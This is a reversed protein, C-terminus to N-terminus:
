SFRENREKLFKIYFSDNLMKAISEAQKFKKQDDKEREIWGVKELMEQEKNWAINYCCQAIGELIGQKLFERISNYMGNTSEEYKGESGIINNYNRLIINYEDYEAYGFLFNNQCSKIILDWILISKKNNNQKVSGIALSNLIKIEQKFLPRKELSKDPYEPITYCLTKELEKQAKELLLGHLARELITRMRLFYQNNEPCYTILQNEIFEKELQDFLVEAKQYQNRKIYSDIRVKKRIHETNGGHLQTIYYTQPLGIRKMWRSFTKIPCSEETEIRLFAQSSCIDECFEIKSMKWFKRYRKLLENFVYCNNYKEISYLQYPDLQCERYLDVIANRENKICVLKKRRTYSIKKRLIAGEELKIYQDQLAVLYPLAANCCLINIGTIAYYRADEYQEKAEYVKSLELCAYPMYMVSLKASIKRGKSYHIIQNLLNKARTLQNKMRYCSSLIILLEMEEPALCTKNLLKLKVDPVTYSIVQKLISITLNINRQTQIMILVRMKGAFQRHIINENITEQEYSQILEEAKDYERNNYAEYIKERQIYRKADKQLIIMEVESPDLGVRKLIRDMVIKDDLYQGKDLKYFRSLPLIGKVIDSLRDGNEERKYEILSKLDKKYLNENKGKNCMMSKM